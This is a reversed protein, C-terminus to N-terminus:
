VRERCSARGIQKVSAFPHGNNDCWTLISEFLRNLQNANLPKKRYLRERFGSKALIEEDVNGASLRAWRYARGVSVHATQGLSDNRLGDISAALYGSNRLLEMADNLATQRGTPSSYGPDVDVLNHFNGIGAGSDVQVVQLRYKGQAVAMAAAGLLACCM